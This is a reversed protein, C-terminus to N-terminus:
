RNINYEKIKNLIKYGEEEKGEMFLKGAEMLLNDSQHKQSFHLKRIKDAKKNEEIRTYHKDLRKQAAELSEFPKNNSLSSLRTIREEWEIDVRRIWRILISTIIGTIIIGIVSSFIYTYLTYGNM